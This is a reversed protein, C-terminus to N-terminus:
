QTCSGEGLGNLSRFSMQYSASHTEANGIPIFAVGTVSGEVVEGDNSTVNFAVSSPPDETDAATWTTGVGPSFSMTATWSGTGEGAAPGLAQIVGLLDSEESQVFTMTYSSEAFVEGAYVHTVIPGSWSGGYPGDISLTWYCQGAVTVNAYGEATPDEVSTAVVLYSGTAAPATFLGNAGIAAPAGNPDFATWTVATNDAGMVIAQFQQSEGESLIATPPDVIVAVSSIRITASRVPAGPTDRAGGTATSVFTAQVPFQESSAPTQISASWVGEGIESPEEAWTAGASLTWELGTDLANSVTIQLEVVAGPEVTTQSAQIDIEIPLVTVEERQFAPTAQGFRSLDTEVTLLAEGVRIPELTTASTIEVADGSALRGESWPAGTIDIDTWVQPPIEVYGSEAIPLNGLQTTFLWGTADRVFTSPLDELRKLWAAYADANGALNLLFDAVVKDLNWGESRASVVVNSWTGPGPRDEEFVSVDLDFNLSGDVFHKPLLNAQGELYTQYAWLASGLAATVAAGGPGTVLGLAGLTLGYGQLLEGTATSPDIERAAAWARTMAADLEAANSVSVARQPAQAAGESRVPAGAEVTGDLAEFLAQLGGLGVLRDLLDVDVEDAGLLDTLSSTGALLDRLDRDHTPDDLVTQAIAAPYVSPDLETGWDAALVEERTTGLAAFRQDLANQFADLADSFAGPAEPLPGLTLALPETVWGGDGRVRVEFAGGDPTGDPHLVVTLAYETGGQPVLPLVYAGEAEADSAGPLALEAYLDIRGSPLGRLVVPVLPSVDTSSASPADAVAPPDDPDPDGPSTPSEGGGCGIVLLPALLRLRAVSRPLRVTMSPPPMPAALHRGRPTPCM